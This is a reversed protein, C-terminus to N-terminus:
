RAIDSGGSGPSQWNRNGHCLCSCKAELLGDVVKDLAADMATQDAAGDLLSLGQRKRERAWAGVFRRAARYRDCPETRCRECMAM